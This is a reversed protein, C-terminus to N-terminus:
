FQINKNIIGNVYKANEKINEFFSKEKVVINLNVTLSNYKKVFIIYIPQKHHLLNM